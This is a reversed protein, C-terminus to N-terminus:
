KTDWLGLCPQTLVYFVPLNISKYVNYSIFVFLFYCNLQFHSPLTHLPQISGKGWVKPCNTKVQVDKIDHTVTMFKKKSTMKSTKIKLEENHLKKNNTIVITCWSIKAM